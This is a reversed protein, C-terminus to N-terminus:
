KREKEKIQRIDLRFDGNCENSINENFLNGSAFREELELVMEKRTFFSKGTYKQKSYDNINLSMGDALVPAEKLDYQFYVSLFDILSLANTMELLFSDAMSFDDTPALMPSAVLTEEKIDYSDKVYGEGASLQSSKLEVKKDNLGLCYRMDSEQLKMGWRFSASNRYKDDIDPKTAKQGITINGFGASRGKNIISAIGRDFRELYHSREATKLGEEIEIQDLSILNSRTENYEDVIAYFRPFKQIIEEYRDNTRLLKRIPNVNDVGLKKLHNQYFMRMKEYSEVIDVYNHKDNESYLGLVAPFQAFTKWYITNKNDFIFTYVSGYHMTLIATTIAVGFSFSKGSGPGGAVFGTPSQNLAVDSIVPDTWDRLGLFLPMDYKKSTLMEYLNQGNNTFNKSRLIDALGIAFNTPYRAIRIELYRDDQDKFIVNTKEDSANEKLSKQFLEKNKLCKEMALGEPLRVKVQYFRPNIKAEVLILYSSISDEEGKKYEISLAQFFKDLLYVLNKFDSTNADLDKIVGSDESFPYLIPAFMALRDEASLRKQYRNDYVDKLVTITAKRLNIIDASTVISKALYNKTDAKQNGQSHKTQKENFVLNDQDTDLSQLSDDENLFAFLDNDNEESAFSFDVLENDEKMLDAEKQVEQSSQEQKPLKELNNKTKATSTKEFLGFNMLKQYSWLDDCLNRQYKLYAFVFLLLMTLTQLLVFYFFNFYPRKVFLALVLLILCSKELKQWFLIIKEESILKHKKILSFLVPFFLYVPATLKEFFYPNHKIKESDYVVSVDSFNSAKPDQTIKEDTKGEFQYNAFGSALLDNAFEKQRQIEAIKQDYDKEWLVRKQAKLFQTKEQKFLEPNALDKM